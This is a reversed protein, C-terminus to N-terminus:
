MIRDPDPGSSVDGSVGAGLVEIREAAPDIVVPLESRLRIMDFVAEAVRRSTLARRRPPRPFFATCRILPILAAQDNLLREATDEIAMCSVQCPWEVQYTVTPSVSRSM